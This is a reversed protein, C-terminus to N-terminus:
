VLLPLNAIEKDMQTVEEDTFPNKETKVPHLYNYAKEYTQKAKEDTSTNANASKVINEYNQSLKNNSNEWELSMPSVQDVMRSFEESTKLDGLPNSPTRPNAFSKIDLAANKSFHIFTEDETFPNKGSSPQYTIADFLRDYIAELLQKEQEQTM